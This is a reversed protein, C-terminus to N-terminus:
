KFNQPTSRCSHTRLLLIHEGRGYDGFIFGFLFKVKSPALNAHLGTRFPPPMKIAPSVPHSLFLPVSWTEKGRSLRSLGEVWRGRLCGRETKSRQLLWVRWLFMERGRDEFVEAVRAIHMLQEDWLAVLLRAAM